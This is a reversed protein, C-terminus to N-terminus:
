RVTTRRAMTWETVVPRNLLRSLMFSVVGVAIMPLTLLILQSTPWNDFVDDLGFGTLAFVIILAVGGPALVGFARLVQRMYRVAVPGGHWVRWMWLGLAATWVVAYSVDEGTIAGSYVFGFTTAVAWYLGVWILTAIM